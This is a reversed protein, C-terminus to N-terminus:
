ELFEDLIEAQLVLDLHDVWLGDASEIELQRAALDAGHVHRGVLLRQHVDRSQKQGIVLTRTSASRLVILRHAVFLDKRTPSLAASPLPM